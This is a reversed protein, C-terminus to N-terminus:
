PIRLKKKLADYRPDGVLFKMEPTLLISAVRTPDFGAARDLAALTRDKDERGAYIIAEHYPRRDSTERRSEAILRDFEKQRGTMVYARALWREWTNPKSKWVAIAEEHRGAMMLARTQLLDAGRVNPDAAAVRRLNGIADDFRGNLFQVLALDRRVTLSLPNMVAAQELLQLARQPQGMLVLTDSYASHIQTLNPNLELARTFSKVAKDWDRDQTYVLGMAVQTEALDPDLALAKLAAPRLEVWNPPVGINWAMATYVGALGAYAPAFKPDIAIVEKFLKIAAEEGREASDGATVARARLYLLYAQLNTQYRRQERALTVQLKNVIARSIEDQIAFVDELTEDFTHSWLTVDGAVQVLQANIRLRNGVRLVDAEVIHNVNLLEGISRLDRPQDKFYLSSTQSKVNLGVENLNRIVESTLGAAFYDSDPEASLNKFPMVGIVPDVIPASAATGTPSASPKVLSGRSGWAVLGIVVLAAVAMTLNVAHRTPARRLASLAAGFLDVSAYRRDPDPDLARAILRRLRPPIRQATDPLTGSTRAAHARRLAALDRGQVPYSGTLLHYLVVGVSYVDSRPSDGHGALVEPALYLPTGSVDGHTSNHLDRGTGFDMLVVRGDNALMVNHAKIDRHLLGAAHVAAVADCLEVGIREVEKASFSTGDRLAEELTRGTVLEMWLGVFGDIREAGYITVVNPHRVRALLRGEEIVDGHGARKGELARVEFSPAPDVPLLKLAVERDLRTDWARYVDGFAGQGIREFVRLPGWHHGGERRSVLRLRALTKLQQILPEEKQGAGSEVSDWEVPACDLIAGAVGDLSHVPRM